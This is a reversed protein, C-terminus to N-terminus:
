LFQPATPVMDTQELDFVRLGTQALGGIIRELEEESRVVTWSFPVGRAFREIIRVTDDSSGRDIVLLDISRGKLWSVFLLVRLMWEVKHQHNFTIMVWTERASADSHKIKYALHVLAICAAYSGFIALLPELM